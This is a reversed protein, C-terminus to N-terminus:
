DVSGGALLASRKRNLTYISLLLVFSTLFLIASYIGAADYNLSEVEDYIAISAVRTQGPINGGLMLVVGFEGVTHAFTLVLGTLISNKSAPIMVRFLTEIKGKGLTWSAEIISVPISSFGSQIPQVMFPFSFVLSGLVIGTFNFVVRFGLLEEIMSGPFRGPSFILLLYFGLVTPPLVLPMAVFTEVVQRFKSKTTSLWYAIPLGILFLIFTTLTAVKVTLFLPELDIM